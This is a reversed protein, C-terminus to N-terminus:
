AQSSFRCHKLNMMAGDHPGFTVIHLLYRHLVVHLDLKGFLGLGSHVPTVVEIPLGITVPVTVADLDRALLIVALRGGPRELGQDGNIQLYTSM